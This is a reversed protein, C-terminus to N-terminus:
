AAHRLVTEYVDLTADACKALTFKELVARRGERGLRRALDENRVVALLGQALASPNGPPVLLGTKFNEVVEPLGGTDSAVVPREMSMAELPALGLNEYTSPVALVDCMAYYPPLDDHPVPGAFIVSKGLGIGQAMSKLETEMKGRGCYILRLGPAQSRAISFASLLHHVGKKETISGVYLIVKENTIGMKQRLGTSSVTPDFLGEDVGDYVTFLRPPHEGFFRSLRREVFKSVSIMAGYRRLTGRMLERTLGKAYWHPPSFGHSTSVCGGTITRSALFGAVMSAMNSTGQVNVIDFDHNLRSLYHEIALLPPWDAEPIVIVEHNRKRFERFLERTHMSIGGMAKFTSIFAIRM